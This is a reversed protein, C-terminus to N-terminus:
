EDKPTKRKRPKDVKEKEQKSTIDEVQPTQNDTQDNTQNDTQPIQQPRPRAAPPQSPPMSVQLYCFIMPVLLIVVGTCFVLIQNKEAYDLFANMYTSWDSLEEEAEGRMAIRRDDDLKKQIPYKKSWTQEAYKEAIAMDYTILINDFLIGSNMTWLEFGIASMPTFHFPHLDEFYDPNPIQRPKWKGKFAINKMLPRIWKGKYNPNKIKSPHWEGCGFEDCIPNSIMPPEWKGDTETQWDEPEKAEPDAVQLPENDRWDSPKQSSPDPIHEPEDENWDEPKKAEPDSIMEDDVWDAPKQDSPDDIEKPPIVPPEFDNFLNGKRVSKQDIFIEFSNDKNIV